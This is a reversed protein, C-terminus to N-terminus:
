GQAEAESTEPTPWAHLVAMVLTALPIAFFVGWFGWLGGFVLVAVIIAVPHLNVAESFLLPVVVNGDLAQIIGYALMLYAFESGWGWQFLAIMAVPITVVAAGIYPIIVSLGVLAALLAAYNLGMLIFVIYSTGGVILIESFKGRVYNGIQQDMEAWVTTALERQKPLYGAIWTLILQKDKLFFFVLLPVLILYVALAILGPISSLSFSLVNQGFGALEGRVSNMIESLQQESVFQPYLEPLRMLMRQGSDIQRPLEQVLQAVQTSLVPILWLLLFLLVVVFVIFVILVAALRPMSKRELLAVLAELLYAIVVSALLPALMSGWFIVVFFGGTLLLALIIAQPDSFNRQYWARFINV